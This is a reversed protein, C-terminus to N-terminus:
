TGEKCCCMERMDFIEESTESSASFGRHCERLLCSTGTRELNMEERDTGEGEGGDQMSEPINIKRQAHALTHKHARFSLRANMGVEGLEWDTVVHAQGPKWDRGRGRRRVSM